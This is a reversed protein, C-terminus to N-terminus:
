NNINIKENIIKGSYINVIYNSLVKEMNSPLIYKIKNISVNGSYGPIANLVTTIFSHVQNESIPADYLVDGVTITCSAKKSFAGTRCIGGTRGSRTEFGIIRKAKIAATIAQEFQYQEIKLNMPEKLEGYLRARSLCINGICSQELVKQIYSVDENSLLNIYEVKISKPQVRIINKRGM